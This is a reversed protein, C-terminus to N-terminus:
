TRYGIQPQSYENAKAPFKGGMLSGLERTMRKMKKVQANMNESAWASQDSHSAMKQVVSEAQSVARNIQEIGRAQENSAASIEALLNGIKSASHVIGAFGNNTEEVLAAGNNIFAVTEDILGATNKAANGARLALNRVEEAVVAFGAGSEGARAAEVAANLALLNTQFAIEDITKVIKSIKESAESIKAMSATLKNMLKDSNQITGDAERMLRDALAANDANQKAMASIQDLVSSTEEISQSQETSGRTIQRSTELVTESAESIRAAGQDLGNILRKFLGSITRIIFFSFVILMLVGVGIAASSIILGNSNIQQIETEAKGVIAQVAEQLEQNNDYLKSNLVQLGQWKEYLKDQIDSVIKHKQVIKTWLDAYTEENVSLVVGRTNNFSIAMKERLELRRKEYKESDQFTLLENVNLMASSHFALMEKLGSRLAEKNEPLDTGMVITLQTEEEVIDNIATTLYDDSEDFQRQLEARTEALALADESATKFFERHTTFLAGFNEVLQQIRQGGNISQATMRMEEIQTSLESIQELLVEQPNNLYRIEMVRTEALHWAVHSGLKGLTFAYRARTDVYIDILKVGLLVLVGLIPLMAIRVALGYRRKQKM